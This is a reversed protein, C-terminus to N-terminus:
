GTVARSTRFPVNRDMEVERPLGLVREGIINRQIQDTGGGISTMYANFARYNVDVAVPAAPGALLSEAGLIATMLRADGHLIRSMALKGLSMLPSSTGQTMEAKARAINLTNLQRYALAQALEQRILPDSLRGHKRAFDILDVRNDKKVGQRREGAGEGMVLREYALATQLVKWGQGEEGLLNGAPIRVNDLVLEATDSSLWGTKKLARGVSFGPSRFLM